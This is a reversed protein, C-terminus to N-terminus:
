WRDYDRRLQGNIGDDTLGFKAKEEALRILQATKKQNAEAVLRAQDAEKRKQEADRRAEDRQTKFVCALVALAAM